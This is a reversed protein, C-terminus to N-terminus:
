LQQGAKHGVIILRPSQREDYTAQSYDGYVQDIHLNTQKLMAEFDSLGYLRVREVYHRDALEEEKLVIHKIVSGNEISRREEIRVGDTVRESYPVLHTRVYEANMFDIIFQGGSKLLRDIESMVKGNEEDTEFYGFSSFLNVVADFTEELPVDRMDGQMWRVKAADALKRAEDLLVDSLDVGTVDYGFETLAVAHRGMGCCLDLVAAQQPLDLWNIMQKVEEYAGQLDRHKYVILYDSGFSQKYWENM